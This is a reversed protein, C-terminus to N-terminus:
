ANSRGKTSCVIVGDPLPVLGDSADWMEIKQMKDLMARKEPTMSALFRAKFEAPENAVGCFVIIAEDDM